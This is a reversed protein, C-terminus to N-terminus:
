LGNAGDLVTVHDDTPDGNVSKPIKGGFIVMKNTAPDYIAVHLSRQQLTGGSVTLTWSPAGGLGNANALVWTDSLSGINTTSGGYVIMRNNTADYVASHGYRASPKSGGPTLQTWAPNGSVGGAHTLVWLDGYPTGNSGGFVIMRDNAADYVASGFGRAGPAPGSPSLQTWSPAGGLGNANKLVWVDNYFTSNCNSGGFVIMENDASDYVATHAYRAPPPGGTPNLKFWATTGGFGAPYQLVNVDNLCPSPKAVGQAGAFVVMRLNVSDYVATHGFRASPINTLNGAPRTWQLACPPLCAPKAVNNAWWLDNYNLSSNTHQGGFIVLTDSGADYIGASQYRASPGYKDWTSSTQARLSPTDVVGLAIAASLLACAALNKGRM